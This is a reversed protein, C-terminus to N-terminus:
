SNFDLGFGCRYYNGDADCYAYSGGKVGSLIAPDIYQDKDYGPVDNPSACVERMVGDIEQETIAIVDMCSVMTLSMKGTPNYDGSLVDLQARLAHDM